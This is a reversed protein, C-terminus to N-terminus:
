PRRRRHTFIIDDLLWHANKGENVSCLNFGARMLIDLDRYIIRLPTKLKKAIQVATLGDPHHWLLMLLKWQRVPQDGRM